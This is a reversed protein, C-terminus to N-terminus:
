SIQADRKTAPPASPSGPSAEEIASAPQPRKSLRPVLGTGNNSDVQGLAQRVASSSALAPNIVIGTDFLADVDQDIRARTAKDAADQTQRRDLM